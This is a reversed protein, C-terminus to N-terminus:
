GSIDIRRGLAPDWNVPKKKEEEEGSEEGDQGAGSGGGEALGQGRGRKENDVKEAGDGLEPAANVSQVNAENKQQTQVAQIAQQVALGEKQAIQAKGVKDVQTFLTQLDIPQIAM